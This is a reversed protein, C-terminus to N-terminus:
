EIFCGIATTSSVPPKKGRVIADLALRLDRRTPHFRTKGFDIYRDDIRGKYLIAGKPGIVAAEPTVSIGFRKVLKHSRDLLALSRFGYDRYHKKLDAPETEEETYVVFFAIRKLSYKAAIRNIEPVYTNAIPCDHAIFMLVTAKSGAVPLRRTNGDLDKCEVSALACAALIITLVILKM